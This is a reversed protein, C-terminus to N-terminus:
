GHAGQGPVRRRVFIWNLLAIGCTTGIVAFEGWHMQTLLVVSFVLGFGAFLYPFPLLFRAKDDRRRRLVPLAVAMAGYVVLRSVASLIANWKFTGLAAFSFVLAAYVVISVYPTRYRPHIAGLFAPFDGGEALAFTLRPAHLLNASLYGYASVLAALAIAMSGATGLFRQAADALPRLSSGADPLTKLTVVQVATYIVAIIALATLLAIPTDRKPDTSEGGVSLAGEFGGYAYVLLLMAEFWSKGSAAPWLLPVRIEPRTILAFAGAVVFLLLFGVKVATFFNSVQKGTKVGVYNFVALQGILAALILLEGKRTGLSPVFQAAYTCFLNAAAAPAAIRTLWTLWAVLLGAFRGLADRAYLYLGGTEEYRSSVEAICGAIVLVAAGALLCCLLSNAGIKEALLSPLQFISVGLISNVMLATFSWRGITRVLGHSSQELDPM